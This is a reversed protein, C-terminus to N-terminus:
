LSSKRKFISVFSTSWKAGALSSNKAEAGDQIRWDMTLLPQWSWKLDEDNTGQSCIGSPWPWSSSTSLTPSSKLCAEHSSLQEVTGLSALGRISNAPAPPLTCDSSTEIRYYQFESKPQHGGDEQGMEVSGRPAGLNGSFTHIAWWCLWSASLSVRSGGWYRELRRLWKGPWMLHQPTGLVTRLCLLFGGIYDTRERLSLISESTDEPLLSKNLDHNWLIWGMM